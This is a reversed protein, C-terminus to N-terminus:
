ADLEMDTLPIAQCSLMMDPDDPTEGHLHQASGQVVRVACSECQGVRCGNPLSIGAHEAFELLTGSDPGWVLTRGSRAFVIRHSQASGVSPRPPAAFAEHFIDFDPMGRQVLGTRVDRMMTLPGCMYVRARAAIQADSVLLNTMRQPPYYDRVQLSPLMACLQQLRSKFAHSNASRNAYHLTINPPIVGANKIDAVLTELLCMFPTIGIGGAILVIPQASAIPLTFRGSPARLFVKQGAVVRKHLHTSLAGEWAVGDRDHGHQHRVAITYSRRQSDRAASTLSYARTLTEADTAGEFARECENDTSEGSLPMRITLHQGPLFDPLGSGDEPTLAVCVVGQALLAIETVIFPRWAVWRRRSIDFLPDRVIDCRYSRHAVSGSVPDHEASSILGNFHRNDPGELSFGPAGIEPCAQWWGFEAVAVDAQMEASVQAAFRAQGHRTRVIVPDGEVIQRQAALVASIQITPEFARKRLSVLSRHQSHCFYGNKASSLQIPFARESRINEAL